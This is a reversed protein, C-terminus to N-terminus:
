RKRRELDAIAAALPVPKGGEQMARDYAEMDELEEMAELLAEYDAIDLLVAVREGQDNVLFKPKPVNMDAEWTPYM